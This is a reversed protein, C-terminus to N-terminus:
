SQGLVRVRMIKYITIVHRWAAMNTYLIIFRSGHKHVFFIRHSNFEKWMNFSEKIGLLKCLQQGRSQFRDISFAWCELYKSVKIVLGARGKKFVFYFYSHMFYVLLMWLPAMGLTHGNAQKLNIPLFRKLTQTSFIRRKREFSRCYVVNFTLECKNQWCKSIIRYPETHYSSNHTDLLTNDTSASRFGLLSLVRM